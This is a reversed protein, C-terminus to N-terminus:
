VNREFLRSRLYYSLTWLTDTHMMKASMAKRIFQRAEKFSKKDVAKAAWIRYREAMLKRNNLLKREFKEAEEINNQQLCDTGTAILQNYLEELLLGGILKRPNDFTHTVSSHNMRYDILAEGIFFIPYRMNVHWVLYHDEGVTGAFFPHYYGTEEWLEKSMMIGVLSFPYELRIKEIFYNDPQAVKKIVKDHEDIINFGISCVKLEPHEDFAAVQKELRQPHCTDDSDLQTILDGSAQQLGFNKNAVYGINKKQQHFKIRPDHLYKEILAVTNDTSADDSIVLEWNTYTQNLISQIARDIFKEVNYSCM